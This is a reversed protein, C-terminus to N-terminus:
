PPDPEIPDGAPREETRLADALRHRASGPRLPTPPTGARRWGPLHIVDFPARLRRDPGTYRHAYLEAARLFVARRTPRRLRAHVANAEGMGRLDTM